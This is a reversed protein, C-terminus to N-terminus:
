PLPPSSPHCLAQHAGSRPQPLGLYHLSPAPICLTPRSQDPTAVASSAGSLEIVTRPVVTEPSTRFPIQAKRRLPPASHLLPRERQQPPPRRASHTPSRSGSAPEASHGPPQRDPLRREPNPFGISPSPGATDCPSRGGAPLSRHNLMFGTPSLLPGATATRGRPITQLQGANM